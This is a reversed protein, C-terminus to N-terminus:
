KPTGGIRRCTEADLSAEEGTSTRCKADFRASTEAASVSPGATGDMVLATGGIRACTQPPMTTMEGSSTRCNGGSGAADVAVVLSPVVNHAGIWVLSCSETRALLIASRDAVVSRGAPDLLDVSQPTVPGRIAAAALHVTHPLNSWTRTDVQTDINQSAAYALLGVLAIAAGAAAANGGGQGNSFAMTTMGAAMATKGFTDMAQKTDAKEAVITDAARGGRTTAQFFMDEARTMALRQGLVQAQLAYNAIFGEHVGLKSGIQHKGPGQGTEAVVLLRADKGPPGLKPNVNQAEAFLEAAKAADGRCHNAWGQLWIQSANDARYRAQEAFTDQLVGGQFSAQANDWDGRALYLLGRYYYAMSREYPEGKFDKVGESYWLSRAKEAEPTDAYISEIGALATDFAREALAQDRAALAALGGHMHDLVRNRPQGQCIQRWTQELVPPVGSMCDGGPEAALVPAILWQLLLGALLVLRIMSPFLGM